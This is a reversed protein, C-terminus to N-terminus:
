VEWGGCGAEAVLVAGEVVQGRWMHVLSWDLRYKFVVYWNVLISCVLVDDYLSYQRQM